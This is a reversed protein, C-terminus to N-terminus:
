GDIEIEKLIAINELYEARCRLVVAVDTIESSVQKRVLSGDPVEREMQEYLADYAANLTEVESREIECLEYERYSVTRIGFPLVCDDSLSLYEVM